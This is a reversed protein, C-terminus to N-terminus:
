PHKDNIDMVIAYLFSSLMAINQAYAADGSL